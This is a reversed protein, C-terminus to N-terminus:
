DDPETGQALTENRARGHMAARGFPTLKGVRKPPNEPRPRRM